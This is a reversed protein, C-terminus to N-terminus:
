LVTLNQPKAIRVANFSINQDFTVLKGEHKTALALLYIDTLQGSSLFYERSFIEEDRLTIDEPWFQHDTRSAFSKLLNIIDAPASRKQKNYSPHSLIRVAGNETIPCSAWGLDRNTSWWEHAKDHLSHNPDLLPIIVNVDLLSRM